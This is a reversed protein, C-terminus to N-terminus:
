NGPMTEGDFVTQMGPKLVGNRDWIGWCAGQPGEGTNAKWPEDYASFYFYPVNNARAWSVANLFHLAANEPSPIAAGISNGCSPWGTESIIVPKDGVATKVQQYDERLSAMAQDIRRGQWYPYLNVMVVDVANIVGPNNVMEADIDATTVPIALLEAKVRQIYTVLQTITLDNRLLAESGVIALDVEGAQARAILCALETENAALDRGLWATMAIKLGLSHAIRGAHELGGGCGYTRVWHTYPAIKTMLTRLQPESITAGRSPDSGDIFPGFNLGHLQYALPPTANAQVDITHLYSARGLENQLTVTIQKTGTTMWRLPVVGGGPGGLVFTTTIDSAWWVIQNNLPPTLAVVTSTFPYDVGVVGTIPGSVRLSNPAVVPLNGSPWYPNYGQEAMIFWATAGVHLRNYYRWDFGTDVSDFPAAVIGKGNGNPATDQIERMEDLVQQAKGTNGLLKYAVVMQGTGELWPGDGNENFDYGSYIHGNPATYTATHHVEAYAIARETWTNKGLVMLGWTQGDLPIVSQNITIGDITTGTMFAGKEDNWMAEVFKRAHHSRDHWKSDGTIRFLREFAALLDLNHETSKWLQKEPNPEHGIYGGTYGGAGRPDTTHIHVWEALKVTADLYPQTRQGEYYTLLALIVWAMNGTDTSVFKTDEVWRPPPPTFQWWGPPRASGFIGRPKWGPPVALDGAQYANRLRGDSYFRDHTQAYLFADAILKARQWDGAQAFNMLALADDYVFSVNKLVTDFPDNSPLTVFSLLFRPENLRPLDYHIDDLYFVINQDNTEAASTVWGFGGLVYELKLGPLPITYQQWTDTLTTYCPSVLRGCMTVKVEGDPFPFRADLSGNEKRGVGFAFFEVREGGRAGRAWFTLKTAGTLNYGANPYTGWNDKPILEDGELMGVQFYWGGWTTSHTATFVNLIATAGSHVTGTFGDHISVSNLTNSIAARHFFHNGAAALDTYVDFQTHYQDMVEALHQYARQEAESPTSTQTPTLTPTLTSGAAANM